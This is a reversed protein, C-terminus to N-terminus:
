RASRVAAVAAKIKQPDKRRDTEIGSSMDVGWPSFARVAEGVNQPTLGGALMFPRRIGGALTWDFREGTGWGNDLLVLDAGSANAREVDAAGRVRFAQIIPADTLTRLRALYGEDESGHLQVVEIGNRTLAAVREPEADVFVGVAVIAGDLRAVLERLREPSVSRHSRLFDVIFGCLDPAAENVAAIDEDRFMGCLKVHTRAASAGDAAAEFLTRARARAQALDRM